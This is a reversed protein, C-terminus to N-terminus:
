RAVISKRSGALAGSRGQADYLNSAKTMTRLAELADETYRLHMDILAGNRENVGAAMASHGLLTKWSYALDPYLAVAQETGEHGAPLGMSELLTDRRLSLEALRAAFENKNDTISQLANFSQRDTLATTEMELLATFEVIVADEDLLCALLQAGTDM